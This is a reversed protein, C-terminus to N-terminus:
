CLTECSGRTERYGDDVVPESWAVRWVVSLMKPVRSMCLIREISEAEETVPFTWVPGREVIWVRDMQNSMAAASM